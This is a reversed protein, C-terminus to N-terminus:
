KQCLGDMRTEVLSKIITLGLGAGAKNNVEKDPSDIQEFENFVRSSEEETLRIGTDKVM